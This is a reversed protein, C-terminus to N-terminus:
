YKLGQSGNITATHHLYLTHTKEADNRVTPIQDFGIGGLMMFIKKAICTTAATHADAATYNDNEYTVNVKRGFIGKKETNIATWFVNLDQVRTKFAPAYTLAAHACINILNSTIGVRDEAPTFLHVSSTDVPPQGPGTTGTTSGGSGAPGTTGSTASTGTTGNSIGTTTGTAGTSGPASAGTTTTGTSSSGGTTLGPQQNDLSAPAPASSCAALM